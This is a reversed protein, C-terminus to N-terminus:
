KENRNLFAVILFMVFQIIALAITASIIFSIISFAMAFM